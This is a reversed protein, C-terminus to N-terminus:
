YSPFAHKSVGYSSGSNLSAPRDQVLLLFINLSILHGRSALFMHSTRGGEVLDSLIKTKGLIGKSIWRYIFGWALNRLYALKRM